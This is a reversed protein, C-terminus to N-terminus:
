FTKTKELGFVIQAFFVSRNQVSDFSNKTEGDWSSQNGNQSLNIKRIVNKRFYMNKRKFKTGEFYSKEESAEYNM